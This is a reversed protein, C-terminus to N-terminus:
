SSNYKLDCSSCMPGTEPLPPQKGPPRGWICPKGHKRAISTLDCIKDEVDPAHEKIKEREGRHAFAGCFCEGSLGIAVKLKNVPLGFEDMYLMQESKSWDICPATWVRKKNRLTGDKQLEGKRVAVAHGMRRVSEASRSGNVLIRSEKSTRTIAYICRDKLAGYAVRHLAPGPFGYTAVVKEFSKNSKHVVLQWNFKDCVKEVFGRTYKSGITTDIHHVRGSFKPHQSALHTAVLSDHGGSFLPEINWNGAAVCGQNIISDASAILDEINRTRERM